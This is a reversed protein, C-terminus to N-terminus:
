SRKKSRVMLAGLLGLGLWAWPAPSHTARYNCGGKEESSSWSDTNAGGDEMEGGPLGPMDVPEGGIITDIMTLNDTVVVAAGSTSFQRIRANVPLASDGLSYPWTQVYVGPTTTGTVEEGGPLELTWTGADCDRTYNAAHINAVDEADPNFEFVPDVTMEDASMTTYLRTIYPNAVMLDAVDFFPQLVDERAAARFAELDLAFIPDEPTAPELVEGSEVAGGSFYCYVCSLFDESTVGERLPVLEAVLERYGDYNVLQRTMQDLVDRLESFGSGLALDVDSAAPRLNPEITETSGALETVFGQGGAENAAATVVRDYTPRFDFWNILLENLELDYYNTPVARHAGLTWVLIPMDDQAAVATPRIPIAMATAEYELVIPRIAGSSEGKTLRFAILNLGNQLYPRLVEPGTPGVDYGNDELWRVAVDAPDQDAADVAITEYDFPGVSGADLVTVTPPLPVVADGDGELSGPFAASGGTGDDPCYGERVVYYNPNTAAQLRDLVQSSSVGPIPVGPVPLVWSFNESPGEYLVEVIQTVHGEEDQAFIIREAAQDVPSSASCFFGGCALARLSVSSITLVAGLATISPLLRINTRQM